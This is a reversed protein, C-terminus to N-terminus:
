LHESTTVKADHNSVQLKQQSKIPAITFTPSNHINLHPQYMYTSCEYSMGEECADASSCFRVLTFLTLPGKSFWEAEINVRNRLNLAFYV